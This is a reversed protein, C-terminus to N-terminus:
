KRRSENGENSQVGAWSSSIAWCPGIPRRKKKLGHSCRFGGGNGGLCFCVAGAEHLVSDAAEEGGRRNGGMLPQDIKQGNGRRWASWVM